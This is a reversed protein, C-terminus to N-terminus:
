IILTNLWNKVVQDSWCGKPSHFGNHGGKDTILVSIKSRIESSANKLEATPGYPVWPDDKSHILLTNPLNNIFQKIRFLPSSKLYYDKVSEYGWSPATFKEDFERITKVNKIKREIIKRSEFNNNIESSLLQKKLRNILWKQYLFNRPQDICESCSNLDLPSSVCVLGQLLNSKGKYDLCANLLITGGLSLGLGFIPFFKKDFNFRSYDLSLYDRLLKTVLIIDNSCRASYNSNTLYRGSGAGRLNLKLIVFGESSLLNSIRKLGFRKTSGGLGHTVIVAGKLTIRRDPVEIYGLLYDEKSTNPSINEIPFFIKEKYKSSNIGFCFSDRITQLDGGIWPFSQKFKFTELKSINKRNILEM